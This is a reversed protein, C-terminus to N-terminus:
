LCELSTRIVDISENTLVYVPDGGKVRHTAPLLSFKCALVLTADIYVPRADKLFIYSNRGRGYKQYYKGLIVYQGVEFEGRWVCNFGECVVAKKRQCQLVYYEVSEENGDDASVAFNDGIDVLDGSSDDEM